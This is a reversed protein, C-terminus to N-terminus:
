LRKRKIKLRNIVTPQNITGKLRRRIVTYSVNSVRAAERITNIEQRQTTSIALLEERKKLLIRQSPHSKPPITTTQIYEFFTRM